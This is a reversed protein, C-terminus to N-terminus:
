ADALEEALDLLATLTASLREFPACAAEALRCLIWCLLSQLETMTTTEGTTTVGWPM